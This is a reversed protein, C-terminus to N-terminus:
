AIRLKETPDYSFIFGHKFSSYYGDLTAFKRKIKVFVDKSLETEPKVIWIKAGTKTHQDEAVTFNIKYEAPEESSDEPAEAKAAM